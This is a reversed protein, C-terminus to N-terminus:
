SPVEESEDPLPLALHIEGHLSQELQVRPEAEALWGSVPRKVRGGTLFKGCLVVMRNMGMLGNIFQLIM